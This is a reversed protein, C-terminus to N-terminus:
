SEQEGIEEITVEDPYFAILGNLQEAFEFPEDYTWAIVKGDSTSFYHADGKLPCHTTREQVPWIEAIVDARPLYVVGDYIDRAIELMRIANESEAILQGNRSIRIKRKIPLLRMYHRADAPNHITETALTIDPFPM